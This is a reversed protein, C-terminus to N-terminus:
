KKLKKRKKNKFYKVIFYILTIFLYIIFFGVALFLPFMYAIIEVPNEIMKYASIVVIIASLILVGLLIWVAKLFFYLPNLIKM